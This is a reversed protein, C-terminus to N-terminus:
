PLPQYLEDNQSLEVLLEAWKSACAEAFLKGKQATARRPDGVGTDKSVKQWNRPLWAVGAQLTPLAWSVFVGDGAEEMRVLEPHYHLMVSSELEGAHDGPEEFYEKEPAAKWWEGSLITVEPFDLALDRIMNKFNNGGHGSIIVLKKLGQHYLSEVTDSLIAYQTQYRGHICFPLERQGPNQSGYPVPPLVMTHVGKEWALLAADVAIAHSLICDTMYPLHLNHPETAGWPLMAIQYETERAEGYCSRTLDVKRILEERNM